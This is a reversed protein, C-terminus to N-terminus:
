KIQKTQTVSEQTQWHTIQLSRLNNCQTNGRRLYIPHFYFFLDMYNKLLGTLLIEKNSLYCMIRSNTGKAM